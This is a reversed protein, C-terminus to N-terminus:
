NNVSKKNEENIRKKLESDQKKINDLEQQYDITQNRTEDLQKMIEDANNPNKQSVVKLKGLLDIYKIMTKTQLILVQAYKKQSETKANKLMKQDYELTLSINNKASDLYSDITSNSQSTIMSTVIMALIVNSQETANYTANNQLHYNNYFEQDNKEKYLYYCGIIVTLIIILFILSRKRNKM